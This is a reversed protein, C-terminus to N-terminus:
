FKNDVGNFFKQLQCRLKKGMEFVKNRAKADFYVCELKRKLYKRELKLNSLQEVLDNYM